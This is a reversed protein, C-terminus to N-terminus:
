STSRCTPRYFPGAGLLPPHRDLAGPTLSFKLPLGTQKISGLTPHPMELYMERHLVQPDAFVDVLDNIPGAPVSVAQLDEVWETSSRTLFYEQLHPSLVPLLYEFLLRDDHRPVGWEGDHYEILLPDSIAWNCRKVM